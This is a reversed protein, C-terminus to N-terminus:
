SSKIVKIKLLCKKYAMSDYEFVNLLDDISIKNSWDFIMM